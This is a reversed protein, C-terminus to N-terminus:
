NKKPDPLSIVKGAARGDDFVSDRWARDVEPSAAQLIIDFIEHNSTYTLMSAATRGFNDEISVKSGPHGALLRVMGTNQRFIAIHLATLGAYPAQRNLQEPDAALIARAEDLDDMYAARLLAHTALRSGDQPELHAPRPTPKPKPAVSM